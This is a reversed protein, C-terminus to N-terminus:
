SAAGGTKMIRTESFRVLQCSGDRIRHQLGYTLLRFLRGFVASPQASDISRLRRRTAGSEQITFYRLLRAVLEGQAEACTHFSQLFATDNRCITSEANIFSARLYPFAPSRCHSSSRLPMGGRRLIAQRFADTGSCDDMQSSNAHHDGRLAIGGEGRRARAM